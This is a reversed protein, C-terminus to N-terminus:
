KIPKDNLGSVTIRVFKKTSVGGFIYKAHDDGAKIKSREILYSLPIMHESDHKNLPTLRYSRARIDDM